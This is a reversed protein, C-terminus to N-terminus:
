TRRQTDMTTVFYICVFAQSPHLTSWLQGLARAVTKLPSRVIREPYIFSAILFDNAKLPYGDCNFYGLFHVNKPNRTQYSKKTSWRMGFIELTLAAIDEFNLPTRNVTISDDGMYIDAQPFEGTTEFILTRMVVANIMSDVLNTFGSGSPVGSRKRFREGNTLRCPTDIFYKVVRWFRRASRRPDVNWIKGESDQVKSMDFCNYIISFVDRIVWSPITKDFKSWDACVFVSNGHQSVMDHVFDMGGKSVEVGYAISTSDLRSKLDNMLPYLFRAEEIFVDLPYGWTTRIKNEDLNCIQARFYVSADPLHVQRGRGVNDWLTHWRKRAVPCELCDRKTKYGQRNYPLGPSCDKPLDPSKEAAGLSLPILKSNSTYEQRVSHLAMLYSDTRRAPRLLANDYELFDYKLDQLSVKARHLKNRIKRVLKAGFITEVSQLALLDTTSPRLDLPFGQGKVLRHM